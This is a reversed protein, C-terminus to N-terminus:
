GRRGDLEAVAIPKMAVEATAARLFSRVLWKPRQVHGQRRRRHRRLAALHIRVLDAPVLGALAMLVLAFATARM